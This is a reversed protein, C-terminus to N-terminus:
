PYGRGAPPALNPILRLRVLRTTRVMRRRRDRREAGSDDIELRREVAAGGVARARHLEVGKADAVPLLDALQVCSSASPEGDRLRLQASIAPAQLVACRNRSTPPRRQARAPAAAKVDSATRRNNRSTALVMWGSGALSGCARSRRCESITSALRTQQAPRRLVAAISERCTPVSGRLRAFGISAARTAAGGGSRGARPVVRARRRRDRASRRRREPPQLHHDVLRRRPPDDGILHPPELAVDHRRAIEAVCHLPVRLGPPRRIESDKSRYARLVRRDHKEGRAAGASGKGDQYRSPGREARKTPSAARARLSAGAVAAGFDVVPHVRQGACM